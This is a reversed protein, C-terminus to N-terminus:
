PFRYEVSFLFKPEGGFIDPGSKPEISIKGNEIGLAENIRDEGIGLNRYFYYADIKANIEEMKSIGEFSQVSSFSSTLFSFLALASVLIVGIVLITVPLDGRKNKPPIKFILHPNKNKM